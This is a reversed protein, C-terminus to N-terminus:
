RRDVKPLVRSIDAREETSVPWHEDCNTCYAMIEAGAELLQRLEEPPYGPQVRDTGCNPCEAFFPVTDQM